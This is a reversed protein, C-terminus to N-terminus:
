CLISMLIIYVNQQFPINLNGKENLYTKIHVHLFIKM